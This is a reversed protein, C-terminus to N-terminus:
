DQRCHMSNVCQETTFPVSLHMWYRKLIEPSVVSNKCAM